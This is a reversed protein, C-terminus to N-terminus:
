EYAGAAQRATRAMHCPQCLPRLNSRDLRLPDDLGQFSRIHDLDTAATVRGKAQCFRCLPEDALVQERVRRWDQGYGRATSSSRDTRAFGTGVTVASATRSALRGLRAPIASLRRTM